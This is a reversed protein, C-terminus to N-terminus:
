IVEVAVVNGEHDFRCQFYTPASGISYESLRLEAMAVVFVRLELVTSTLVDGIGRIRFESAASRMADDLYAPRDDGSTFLRQVDSRCAQERESRQQDTLEFPPPPPVTVPMRASGAAALNMMCAAIILQIAKM